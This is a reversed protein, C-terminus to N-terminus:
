EFMVRKWKRLPVETSTFMREEWSRPAVNVQKSYPGRGWVIELSLRGGRAPARDFSLEGFPVEFDRGVDESISCVAGPKALVEGVLALIKQKEDETM